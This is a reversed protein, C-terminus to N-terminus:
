EVLYRDLKDHEYQSDTVLFDWFEPWQECINPMLSALLEKKEMCSDVFKLSRESKNTLQSIIESLESKRESEFKTLWDFYSLNLIAPHSYDQFYIREAVLEFNDIAADIELPLRNMISLV